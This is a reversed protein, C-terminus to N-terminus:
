LIKVLYTELKHKGKTGGAKERRARMKIDTGKSVRKCGPGKGRCAGCTMRMRVMDTLAWPGRRLWRGRWAFGCRSRTTAVADLAGLGAQARTWWAERQRRGCKQLGIREERVQRDRICAGIVVFCRRQEEPFQAAQAGAAIRNV